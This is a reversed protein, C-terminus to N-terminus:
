HNQRFESPTQSTIKKFANNFASKSNYGVREALEEMTIKKDRDALLIKQAEEIRYKALLEFFNMNLKENIVQSVHHASENIQKSLGSLSALNNAYYKKVQMEGNIKSLISEKDVEALSSKQYKLIPFDLFSHTQNFFDSKNLIQYSTAYIMLSIYAAILYGGVDSGMGYYVKTGMYVLIIVVFHFTTNRLVALLEVNTRFLSQNLVKFKRYLVMMAAAMYGIFQIITLQNIFRRIGLPDDDIIEETNLYGWDPHKTEIYSNYKVSDPQIFAFYMYFLWFTAIIFHVWVNQKEKPNLSTTIYLYFLPAFTFNLPESYNTIPLLRVIYGTNNLLEEFITLSLFLILLGQYLNATNEKPSNKIFFWSILLGQFVGLFIFFDFIGIHIDTRM